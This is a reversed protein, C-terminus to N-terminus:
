LASQSPQSTLSNSSKADLAKQVTQMLEEPETDIKLKYGVAGLKLAEQIAIDGGINTLMIVVPEGYKAPNSKLESLTGVGDLNPMVIDLLMLDYKNAECKQLAENGDTATDVVYGSNTRLLEAFLDKADPEDDVVLIRKKGTTDVATAKEETNSTAMPTNPLLNNQPESPQTNEQNLVNQDEVTQNADNSLPPLTESPVSVEPTVNEMVPAVNTNDVMPTELAPQNLDESVVNTDLNSTTNDLSTPETPTSVAPIPAVDSNNNFEMVGGNMQTVNANPIQSNMDVPPITPESAENVVPEPTAVPTTPLDTYMQNQPEPNVPNAIDALPETELVKSAEQLAQSAIEASPQPMNATNELAQDVTANNTVPQTTQDNYSPPFVPSSGTVPVSNDGQTQNQNDM